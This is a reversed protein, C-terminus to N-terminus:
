DKKIKGTDTQGTDTQFAIKGAKNEIALEVTQSTKPEM